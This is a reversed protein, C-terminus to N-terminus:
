YEGGVKRSNLKKDRSSPLRAPPAEFVIDENLSKMFVILQDKETPTLRLSDSSLTQNDVKLGRGAGGGGDYFDVVEKLSTFLGNHMYPKTFEANRVSGTRFANSTETAPNIGYRGMDKSLATYATDEPVGLVEFESGVFPPKVGNFQPVFHCTACQAKTMFLNFGEKVNVDVPKKGNMAEDFPAYYNSFKSYYLTIASLIHDLTVEKEQPTYQLLNKFGSKYDPCSLVKEVITSEECGLELKNSIVDRAQDQMSIHKGDLMLLHNFGANILSPTNRALPDKRNFQLSKALTTDTFYETSKHCSVCSRMNNGSLIPDYFLLKGLRDIEALVKEDKVRLFIGKANQGDYIEKSFISRAKKNLSYDVFSKSIVKHDNILQQNIAFLPNIYDKIFVFNDFRSYADPQKQAFSVLQKFVDLYSAPLAKDPFGTNFSQYIEGVDALMARLEPIVRSTDPCEFGTTYIAALNLIFLRNCLYFHHYTKLENTISDAGYTEMANVSYRVLAALSDKSANEEDLYLEALTLGAGERKYPKEFKEFVETEWEVPLPGNLRKYAIPELYRLWFDMGKLNKRADAIGERIRSIDAQSKLDSKLILELLTQQRNKLTELKGNYGTVYNKSASDATFSLLGTVILVLILAIIYFKKM